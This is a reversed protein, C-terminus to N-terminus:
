KLNLETIFLSFVSSDNGSKKHLLCQRIGLM